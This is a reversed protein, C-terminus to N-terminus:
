HNIKQPPAVSPISRGPMRYTDTIGLPVVRGLQPIAAEEALPNTWCSPEKPHNRARKKPKQIMYEVAMLPTSRTTRCDVSKSQNAESRTLLHDLFPM